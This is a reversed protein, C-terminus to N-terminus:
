VEEQLMCYLMLVPRPSQGSPDIKDQHMQAVQYDVGEQVERKHNQFGKPRLMNSPPLSM